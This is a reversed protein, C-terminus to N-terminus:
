REIKGFKMYCNLILIHKLFLILGQRCVFCYLFSGIMQFWFAFVQM